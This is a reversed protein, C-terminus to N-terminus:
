PQPALRRDISELIRVVREGDMMTASEGPQAYRYGQVGPVNGQKQMTQRLIEENNQSGFMNAYEARLESYSMETKNKGTKTKPTDVDMGGFTLVQFVNSKTARSELSDFFTNAAHNMLALLEEGFKAVGMDLAAMFVEGLRGQEFADVLQTMSRGVAQGMARAQETMEPLKATIRDFIKGLAINLPKGFENQLLMYQTKMRSTASVFTKAGLEHARAFRGTGNTVSQLAMRVEDFTVLKKEMRDTVAGYTEGTREMIQQLPNWGANVFQRIEEGQLIMKGRSQGLATALRGFTDANGGSVKSLRETADIAEEIGMGYNLLIKTGGGLSELDLNSVVDIKLLEKMLKKAKEMSGTFLEFSANMQEFRSATESAGKVLSTIGAALAVPALMAALKAFPSVLSKGVKLAVSGMKKFQRELLNLGRQVSAGAFKLTFTTSLAM